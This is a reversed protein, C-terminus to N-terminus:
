KNKRVPIEVPFRKVICQLIKTYLRKEFRYENKTAIYNIIAGAIIKRQSDNLPTNEEYDLLFKKSKPYLNLIENIDQLNNNIFYNPIMLEKISNWVLEFELGVDDLPRSNNTM